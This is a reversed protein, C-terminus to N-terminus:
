RGTHLTTRPEQDSAAAEGGGAGEGDEGGGGGEWDEQCCMLDWLLGTDEWVRAEM